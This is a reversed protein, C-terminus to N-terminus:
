QTMKRFYELLPMSRGGDKASAQGSWGTGVALELQHFYRRRDEISQIENREFFVHGADDQTPFIIGVQDCGYMLAYALLQLRDERAYGGNLDNKYKVDLVAYRGTEPNCLIIDPKVNGQIYSACGNGSQSLVRAKSDYPLMYLGGDRTRESRIGARKLCARAYLEFLRSMSVAYPIVCGTFRSQGNAELTIENLVMKAAHIVPKYYAYCGVTRTQGLDQRTLRQDSVHALARHCYAAMEGFSNKGGMATGFYQRLFREAKYLAAKLVRNELIDQSYQLYRCFIRDERGRLTNARINPSFLVKGKVKGVLNEERCLMKGMLPKRCLDKLLSLFASVAIISSNLALTDSVYIPEEHDSFYFLENCRLDEIEQPVEGIRTSQPALYREFEDDDRLAQLMEVVSVPFRPEVKLIVERGDLSRIGKGSVDRLRCLGVYNGSYVRGNRRKLGLNVPEEQTSYLLQDIDVKEQLRDLPSNDSACFIWQRRTGEEWEGRSVM